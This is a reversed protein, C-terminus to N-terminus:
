KEGENGVDHRQKSILILLHILVIYFSIFGDNLEFVIHNQNM